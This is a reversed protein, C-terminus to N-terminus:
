MQSPYGKVVLKILLLNLWKLDYREKQPVVSIHKQLYFAAGGDYTDKRYLKYGEASLESDDLHCAASVPHLCYVSM